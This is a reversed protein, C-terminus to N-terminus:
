SDEIARHNRCANMVVGIVNTNEAIEKECQDFQGYHTADARVVILACDVNKFFARADDGSLVSPLDFIMIDPQYTGQIDELCEATEESLLLRTPDDELRSCMSVAINDGIRLAHESFDIQNNFVDGLSSDSSVELFESVSPDRLDLDFLMTNLDRQRGFGLALNCAITTKGSNPTPSTIALRTWNNQRMLLLLKTRLIDFPTSKVGAKHAYIRNTRLASDSIECPKLAEWVSVDDGLRKQIPDSVSPSQGVRKQRAADLAAQLKEM